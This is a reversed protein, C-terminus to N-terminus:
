CAMNKERMDYPQPSDARPATRDALWGGIWSAVIPAIVGVVNLWLPHPLSRINIMDAALFFMGVLVAHVLRAQRAISAALWSGVLPGLTWAVAVLVQAAPPAEAMHQKLAERDSLNTGPPLPHILMGPIEILFVLAGGALIGALVAFISRWM